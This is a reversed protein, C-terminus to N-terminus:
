RSPVNACPGWLPDESAKARNSRTGGALGACRSAGGVTGLMHKFTMALFLTVAGFARLAEKEQWKQKRRMQEARSVSGPM